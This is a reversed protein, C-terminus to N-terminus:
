WPRPRSPCRRADAGPAPVGPWPERGYRESLATTFAAATTCRIASYLGDGDNWSYQRGWTSAIARSGSSRATSSSSPAMSSASAVRGAEAGAPVPVGAGVGRERRVHDGALGLRVDDGIDDVDIDVDAGQGPLGMLIDFFVKAM